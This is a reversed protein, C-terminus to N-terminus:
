KPHLHSTTPKKQTTTTPPLNRKPSPLHRPTIKPHPSHHHTYKPHHHTITPPPPYIKPLPAHHHTTTSPPPHHCPKYYGMRLFKTFNKLVGKKLPYRQHSNGFSYIRIFSGRQTRYSNSLFVNITFSLSNIKRIFVVLYYSMNM